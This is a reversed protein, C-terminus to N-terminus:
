VVLPLEHITNPRGMLVDAMRYTGHTPAEIFGQWAM